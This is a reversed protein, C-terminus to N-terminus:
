LRYTLKVLMTRGDQQFSNQWNFAAAPEAYRKDLLNYVGLSLELGRALAETSLYLNSVAYGGLYTGDLTLRQSDYRLEYGASIGAVGLPASLNLKGLVRPSNLLRGGAQDVDQLSVSGRLRAGSIWTRDASLEVGRARVTAGSQYQSPSAPDAPDIPELTILRRMTWQYLSGRLTLDRDVRQDAVLELTDITEGKLAPNAVQGTGDGGYCCEFDNPARSARGYLTKITTAAAAQWILAARPSLTDGTVNNRDLRLGLTSSLKDSIRWDDQAYFGTRYGSGPIRINNAPNALDLVQQDQDLNAQAEVGVMLKHRDLATYLLRVEGGRWDGVAPYSFPAGDQSLISAFRYWGEFLRAALHVTDAAYSDQFQLQALDYRDEQFQGPVLPDSLYVGTPDGKQRDGHELDLSWAGRAVHAFLQNLREGDMGAAVGSIGSAGYGLFRDAGYAHLASASLLVDTGDELKQGWTARGATLAQPEEYTASLEAGGVAAGTRTVVNVVGLMANQGYVAGGPGPIFEIREILDIDLPFQRGLPGTDFTADNVRNGNITVLIRTTYDGPLGFGRAGLYTYQNDYTTYLGPLSALADAVTRWGFAKIERRTIVTVSAAVESQRQEYKSAGLIRVELLQELSMSTLDDAAHGPIALAGCAVATATRLARGAAARAPGPLACGNGPIV